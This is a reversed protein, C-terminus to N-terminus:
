AYVTECGRLNHYSNLQASSWIAAFITERRQRRFDDRNAASATLIAGRIVQLSPDNVHSLRNETISNVKPLTEADKVSLENQGMSGRMFWGITAVLISIMSLIAHLLFIGSM